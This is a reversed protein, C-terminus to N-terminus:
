KMKNIYNSIFYFVSSVDWRTRRHTKQNQSQVRVRFLYVNSLILESVNVAYSLNILDFHNLQEEQTMCFVPLDFYSVQSSTNEESSQLM